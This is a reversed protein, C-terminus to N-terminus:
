LTSALRRLAKLVLLFVDISSLAGRPGKAIVTRWGSAQRPAHTCNEAHSCNLDGVLTAKSPTRAGACAM